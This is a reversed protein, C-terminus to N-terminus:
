VNQKGKLERIFHAAGATTGCEDCVKACREIVEDDHAQLSQAPTSAMVNEVFKLDKDYQEHKEDEYGAYASHFNAVDSRQYEVAIELAERLENIHAQLQTIESKKDLGGAMYAITLQEKLESIETHLEVEDDYYNDNQIELEKVREKLKAIEQASNAESQECKAKHYAEAFLKASIYTVYQKNSEDPFEFFEDAFKEIDIENSM